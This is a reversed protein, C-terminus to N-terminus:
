RPLSELLNGSVDGFFRRVFPRAAVIVVLM